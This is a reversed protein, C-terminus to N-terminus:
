FSNRHSDIPRVPQAGILALAVDPAAAPGVYEFGTTLRALARKMQAKGAGRMNTDGTDIVIGRGPDYSKDGAMSPQRRISWLPSRACHAVVAPHSATRFVHRHGVHLCSSVFDALAVGIGVGQFDPLCVLRHLRWGPVYKHPFGLAAVFAVPRDRWFAAFCLAATNLNTDLYHHHRFQLWASHHVRGITLTLAPPRQLERWQFDNTAPRYVWDPTLWAEVDEHCTVAILRQQRARTTRAIAASGVQAVTRDVVSTFEDVVAVADDTNEALVRAMTVRFHEGTSLVHYPRVWSPPDSFGVSSLLDVISKIGMARPFADLVSKTPHWDYTKRMAEGWLARAVTSKGSGSPGVILGISWPREDLPLAVDWVLEVRQSPPVDFLGELQLVRPTREVTSSVVVRASQM